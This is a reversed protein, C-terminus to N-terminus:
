AEDPESEDDCKKSYFERYKLHTRRKIAIELFKDAKKLKSSPPNMIFAFLDLYGQIDKRLFGSHSDLFLKLLAHINNIRDLPNDTDELGKLEETTYVTETLKLETVLETHSNEDDHILHSKERIHDRFTNLTRESSPKGNGEYLCYVHTKDAATGICMKNRSIGRLLKGNKRVADAKRVSYFTEDLYVDGKLVTSSQSDELVLFVKQLWYRSTTYANRNNKSDSTLSVFDFLNLLYQLWEGISIKHDEFITGTTICFSQRCERCVYRQLGNTYHGNKVFVDSSCYPCTEPLYSDFLKLDQMEKLSKHHIDYNGHYIDRLYAQMPTIEADSLDDWPTKRRSQSRIRSKM